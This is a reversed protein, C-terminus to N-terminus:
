NSPYVSLPVQELKKSSRILQLLIYPININVYSPPFNILGGSLVAPGQRCCPPDRDRWVSTGIVGRQGRDKAATQKRNREGRWPANPFIVPVFLHRCFALM